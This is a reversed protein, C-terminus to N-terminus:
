GRAKGCLFQFFSCPAKEQQQEAGAVGLFSMLLFVKMVDFISNTQEIVVVDCACHSYFLSDKNFVNSTSSSFPSAYYFQKVNGKEVSSSTHNNLNLCNTEYINIKKLVFLHNQVL